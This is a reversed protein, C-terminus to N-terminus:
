QNNEKGSPSEKPEFYSRMKFNKLVFEMLVATYTPRRDIKQALEKITLRPEDRLIEMLKLADKEKRSMLKDIYAAKEQEYDSLPENAGKLPEPATDNRRTIM